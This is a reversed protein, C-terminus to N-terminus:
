LWRRARFWLLPVIASCLIAALALPYGYQWKLEPMVVFNMGYISAIMTPPMFVVSVVTMVKIINSQENNIFGLTADLLFQVRQSIHADQDLLSAIDRRLTKLRVALDAPLWEAAHATLFPLIRSTGLLTDRLKAVVEGVRGIRRLTGRLELDPRSGPAPEQFIRHSTADLGAGLRELADASSEILEELLLTFLHASGEGRAEAERGRASAADFWALDGYRLTILRDPSLVFGLPLVQPATGPLPATLVPLNMFLAGDAVYMRSSSEIEQLTDLTPLRLGTAREVTLREAESPRLLDIWVRGTVAEAQVDM